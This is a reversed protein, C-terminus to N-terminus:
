ETKTNLCIKPVAVVRQLQVSAVGGGTVGVQLDLVGGPRCIYAHSADPRRHPLLKSVSRTSCLCVGVEEPEETLNARSQRQVNFATEWHRLDM